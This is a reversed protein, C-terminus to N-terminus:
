QDVEDKEAVVSATRRLHFLDVTEKREIPLVYPIASTNKMPMSNSRLLPRQPHASFVAALKTYTDIWTHSNKHPWHGHTVALEARERIDGLVQKMREKDQFVVTMSQEEESFTVLLDTQQGKPDVQSQAILAKFSRSIPMVCCLTPATQDPMVQLLLLCAEPVKPLHSDPHIVLVIHHQATLSSQCTTACLKVPCCHEATDPLPVLSEVVGKALDSSKM